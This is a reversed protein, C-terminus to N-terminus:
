LAKRFGKLIADKSPIEIKPNSDPIGVVNYEKWADKLPILARDKPYKKWERMATSRELAFSDQCLTIELPVWVKGDQVVYDGKGAQDPTLGSDFAIFIHGPCTIFATDIGLSELLACNLISLDDCDGGHYLLTQYPFQLFDVQTTGTNDSFASAPDVVYNIGYAKLAGFLAAAMQVNEPTGANFEDSVVSRVYSAFFNASGDRPSVFAAARRDDEWTMNNRGYTILEVSQENTIRKGLSKYSVIIKAGANVPMLTTLITEDLFATLDATFSEGRKVREITTCVSPSTMFQEIYVSVEVSTIDNKENNIFTATGFKHDAYRSYFVPFIPDLEIESLNVDSSSFLGKIVSYKVSLGFQTNKIYSIGDTVFDKYGAFVGASLEPFINYFASFRGGYALGSAATIKKNKGTIQIEPVQWIGAYGELIMTLRDLLTMEYGLNVGFDTMNFSEIGVASCPIISGEAGVFVYDRGRLRIPAFNIGATGVFSTDLMTDSGANYGGALRLSVDACFACNLSLFFALLFVLKKM